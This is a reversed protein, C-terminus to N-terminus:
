THKLIIHYNLKKCNECQTPKVLTLTSNKECDMKCSRTNESSFTFKSLKNTAALQFRQFFEARGSIRWNATHFSQHWGILSTNNALWGSLYPSDCITIFDLIYNDMELVTVSKGRMVTLSPTHKSADFPLGGTFVFM